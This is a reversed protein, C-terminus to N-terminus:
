LGWQPGALANRVEIDLGKSHNVDAMAMIRGLLREDLAVGRRTRARARARPCVGVCVRSLACQWSQACALAAAIHHTCGTSARLGAAHAAALSGGGSCAPASSAAACRSALGSRLEEVSLTGSSDADMSRFLETLGTVEDESMHQAM